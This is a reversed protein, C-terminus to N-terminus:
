SDRGEISTVGFVVAGTPVTRGPAPVEIGWGANCGSVWRDVWRSPEM